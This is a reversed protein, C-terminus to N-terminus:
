MQRFWALTRALGQEFSVQPKWDLEKEAKGCDFYFLRVDGVRKPGHQAEINIGTMEVLLRYITNVSVPKGSGINYAQDDGRELALINANVADDVYLYDKAQEGDWHIIPPLGQLLRKAFVTIVHESSITDRSGFINAYRLATYHVGLNAAFYRLYFESTAKSIGYPSEPAFPENETIPLRQCTGYVTGGSSAFIVKRTGARAAASLLNIIGQVNVQSDYEPQETSVRVMTQAAHHDIVEPREAEILRAFDPSRVDLEYFHAAPNVNERYGTALNDVVIVGHGLEILRDVIHSAIFGAGGTVLIKSMYGRKEKFEIQAKRFAPPM